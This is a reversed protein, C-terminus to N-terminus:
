GRLHDIFSQAEARQERRSLPTRITENNNMSM